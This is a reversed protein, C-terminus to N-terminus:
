LIVKIWRDKIRAWVPLGKNLRESIKELNFDFNCNCCSGYKKTYWVPLFWFFHKSNNKGFEVFEIYENLTLEKKAYDGKEDYTATVLKVFKRYDEMTILKKM